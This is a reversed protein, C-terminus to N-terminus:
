GAGDSRWCGLAAAALLLPTGAAASSRLVLVRVLVTGYPLLTAAAPRLEARSTASECLMSSLNLSFLWSGIHCIYRGAHGWCRMLHGLVAM